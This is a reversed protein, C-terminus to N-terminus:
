HLQNPFPLMEQPARCICHKDKGNHYLQLLMFYSEYVRVSCKCLGVLFAAMESGIASFHHAVACILALVRYNIIIYLSTHQSTIVHCSADRYSPPKYGNIPWFTAIQFSNFFKIRSFGNYKEFIKDIRTKLVGLSKFIPRFNASISCNFCSVLLLFVRYYKSCVTM